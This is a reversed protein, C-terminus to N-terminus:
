KSSLVKNAEADGAVMRAQAMISASRRRPRPAMPPDVDASASAGDRMSPSRIIILSAVCRLILAITAFAHPSFIRATDTRSIFTFFYTTAIWTARFSISPDLILNSIAHQTGMICQTALCRLIMMYSGAGGNRAGVV